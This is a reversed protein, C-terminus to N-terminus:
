PKQGARFVVRGDLMTLKVGIRRIEDDSCNLYDRDLVALDALKGPELSGKKKEDFALYAGNITICRLAQM